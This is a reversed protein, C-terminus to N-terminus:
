SDSIEDNQPNSQARNDRELDRDYADPRPRHRTRDNGDPGTPDAATERATNGVADRADGRAEAKTDPDTGVRDETPARMDDNDRYKDRDTV